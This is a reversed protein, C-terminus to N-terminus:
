HKSLGAEVGETHSLMASVIVRMCNCIKSINIMEIKFYITIMKLRLTFFTAYYLIDYHLFTENFYVLM